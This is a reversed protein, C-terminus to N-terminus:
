RPQHQQAPKTEQQELRQVEEWSTTEDKAVRTGNGTMDAWTAARTRNRAGAKIAGTAKAIAKKSVCTGNGTM